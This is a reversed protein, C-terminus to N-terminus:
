QNNGQANRDDFISKAGKRFAFDVQNKQNYTAKDLDEIHKGNISENFNDLETYDIDGDDNVFKTDQLEEKASDKSLAVYQGNNTYYLKEQFDELDKAKNLSQLEQDNFPSMNDSAEKASKSHVSGGGFNGNNSAINAANTNRKELSSNTNETSDTNDKLNDASQKSAKKNNEESYKDNNIRSAFEKASGKNIAAPLAMSANKFANNRERNEPDKVDSDSIRDHANKVGKRHNFYDSNRFRNAAANAAKGTAYSAGAVPLAGLLVNRATGSRAAKNAVRSAAYSSGSAPNSFLAANKIFKGTSASKSSNKNTSSKSDPNQINSAFNKASKNADINDNKLYSKAHSGWSSPDKAANWANKATDKSFQESMVNSVDKGTSHASETAARYSNTLTDGRRSISTAKKSLSMGIQAPFDIITTILNQQMVTKAIVLYFGLGINVISKVIDIVGDINQIGLGKVAGHMGSAFLNVASILLTPLAYAILPTLPVTLALVTASMMHIPSGKILALWWHKFTLIAVKFFNTFILAHICGFIIISTLLAQTILALYSGVKGIIGEGPMTYSRWETKVTSMNKATGQLGTPAINYAYFNAGDNEFSSQLLLAVSQTSFSDNDRVGLPKDPKFKDNKPDAEKKESPPVASWIYNDLQTYSKMKPYYSDIGTYAAFASKTDQGSVTQRIDSFYTNVNFTDNQMWGFILDFGIKSKSKEGETINYSTTNIQSILDRSSSPAFDADIHQAESGANPVKGGQLGSPSLNTAAAWKRDNLIYQEPPSASFKEDKVVDQVSSALGGVLMGVIIPIPFCVCFQVLLKKAPESMRSFAFGKDSLIAMIKFLFIAVMVFFSISVVMNFLLPNIGIGEVFGYIARIFPNDSDSSLTDTVGMFSLINLQSFFSVLSGLLFQFFAVLVQTIILITGGVFKTLSDFFGTSQAALRNGSVTDIYGYHNFTSLFSALQQGANTQEESLDNGLSYMKNFPINISVGGSGIFKGVVNKVKGEIYGDDNKDENGEDKGEVMLIRAYLTWFSNDAKIGKGVAYTGDKEIVTGNELMKKLLTKDEEKMDDANARKVIEEASEKNTGNPDPAALAEHSSLDPLQLTNNIPTILLLSFIAIVTTLFVKTIISKAYQM